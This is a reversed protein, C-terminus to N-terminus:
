LITDIVEVVFNVGVVEFGGDLYDTPSEFFKEKAKKIAEKHSEAEIGSISVGIGVEMEVIWKKM